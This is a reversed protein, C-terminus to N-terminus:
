GHYAYLRALFGDLDSNQLKNRVAAAVGELRADIRSVGTWATYMAGNGSDEGYVNCAEDMVKGSNMDMVFRM